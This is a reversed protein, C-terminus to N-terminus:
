PLKWKAECRVIPDLCIVERELRLGRFKSQTYLVRLDFWNGTSTSSSYLIEVQPKLIGSTAHYEAQERDYSWSSGPILHLSVRKEGEPVLLKEQLDKEIKDLDNVDGRYVLGKGSVIWEIESDLNDRLYSIVQSPIRKNHNAYSFVAEYAEEETIGAGRRFDYM